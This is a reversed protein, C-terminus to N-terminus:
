LFRGIKAVVWGLLFAGAVTRLPNKKVMKEVDTKWDDFTERADDIRGPMRELENAIDSIRTGLAKSM